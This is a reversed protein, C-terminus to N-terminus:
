QAFLLFVCPLPPFVCAVARAIEADVAEQEGRSEKHREAAHASTATRRQRGSESTTGKRRRGDETEGREHRRADRMLLQHQTHESAQDDTMASEKGGCAETFNPLPEALRGLTARGGGPGMEKGGGSLGCGMDGPPFAFATEDGSCDGPLAGTVCNVKRL